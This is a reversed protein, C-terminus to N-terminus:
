GKLRSGTAKKWKFMRIGRSAGEDLVDVDVNDVFLGDDSDAVEYDSDVFDVDEVDSGETVDEAEVNTESRNQLNNYFVHLKERSTNAVGVKPLEVKPNMVIDDWNVGNLLGDHDVYIVLNKVRDIVSVMINTDSDTSVVRLGNAVEKGPLLWHVKQSSVSIEYGLQGLCDDIWLPSWTDVDYDDFWDLKENIYMRQQGSGVFFVDHHVELSFLDLGDGVNFFLFEDKTCDVAIKV